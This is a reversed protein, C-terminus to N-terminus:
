LAHRTSPPHARGGAGRCGEEENRVEGVEWHFFDIRALLGGGSGVVQAALVCAVGMTIAIDAVNFTPWQPVQIFDIVHGHILRDVLNGVIGGCLLGFIIQVLPRSLELQRRFVFIACLTIMALVALWLSKGAFLGWAAGTNGVHVIHFLSPIVTIRGPEYYTNFPLTADIWAKTIQDLAFVILCWLFLTRYRYIRFLLSDPAPM